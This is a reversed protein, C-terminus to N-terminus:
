GECVPAERQLSGKSLDLLPSSCGPTTVCTDSCGEPPLPWLVMRTLSAQLSRHGRGGLPLVGHLPGPPWSRPGINATRECRVVAIQVGALTVSVLASCCATCKFGRILVKFTFM